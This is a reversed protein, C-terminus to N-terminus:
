SPSRESTPSAAALLLAVARRDIKGTAGLPLSPLHHVSAPRKHRALTALREDLARRAAPSLGCGDATLYALAIRQGWRDDPLGVAVAARLGPVATVVAEIESPYVNYGGTILLDGRRDTLYLFGDNMRGIDGTHLTDGDVAKGLDTREDANWYGPMVMPGRVTVEDGRIAIDAEAVPRGASALLTPDDALGRAHDRVGLVTLPPIAEVLGYYQVLRDTLLEAARRIQEPATPAGAYALMRLERFARREGEPLRTLADIVSPVLALHTIGERAVLDAIGAASPHHAFVQRAGLALMPLTFLGSTHIAPGAHLYAGVEGTPAVVDRLMARMSALRMGHTRIAGKPRGTTGSSYALGVIDDAATAPLAADPDGAPLAGALITIEAAVGEVVLSGDPGALRPDVVLARAGSDALIGHWEAPGLRPNLPVRVLGACALALECVILDIGNPLAELVREGPRLGLDRLGAALSRARDRLASFSLSGSADAVAIADPHRRAARDVVDGVVRMTDPATTM